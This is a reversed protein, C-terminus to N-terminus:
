AHGRREKLDLARFSESALMAYDEDGFDQPTPMRDLIRRYLERQETESLREVGQIIHQVAATM